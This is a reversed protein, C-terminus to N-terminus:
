INAKVGYPIGTLAGGEGRAILEDAKKAYELARDGDVSVFANYKGNSREIEDLYATTLEVSSISKSRLMESYKKIKGPM